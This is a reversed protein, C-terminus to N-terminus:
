KKERRSPNEEPSPMWGIDIRDVGNATLTVGVIDDVRRSTREIRLKVWDNPRMYRLHFDLTCPIMPAGMNDCVELLEEFSAERDVGVLELLAKLIEMRQHNHRVREARASM